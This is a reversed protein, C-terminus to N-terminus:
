SNFVRFGMSRTPTAHHRPPRVISFANQAAGTLGSDVASLVGGTAHLAADWSHTSIITDGTSLEHLGAAIEREALQIYQRSHCLAIEDVTAARTAIPILDMGHLAAVATDFREPREPHRSGTQHEKCAPDARLGTM